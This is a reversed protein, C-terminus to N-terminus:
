SRKRKKMADYLTPSIPTAKSATDDNFYDVLREKDPAQTLASAAVSKIEEWFEETIIHPKKMKLIDSAITAVPRSTKENLGM